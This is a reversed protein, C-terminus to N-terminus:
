DIQQARPFQLLINVLNLLYLARHEGVVAIWTREDLVANVVDENTPYDSPPLQVWGLINKSGSTTTNM